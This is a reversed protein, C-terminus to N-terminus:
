GFPNWPNKKPKPRKWLDIEDKLNHVAQDNPDLGQAIQYLKRVQELRLGFADGGKMLQQIGQILGASFVQENEMYSVYLQDHAAVRKEKLAEAEMQWSDLVQKIRTPNLERRKKNAIESLCDEPPNTLLTQYGQCKGQWVALKKNFEAVSLVETQLKQWEAELDDLGNLRNVWTEWAKLNELQMQANARHKALDNVTEGTISYYTYEIKGELGSFKYSKAKSWEMDLTQSIRSVEEFQEQEIATKLKQCNEKLTAAIQTLQTLERRRKNVTDVLVQEAGCLELEHNLSTGAMAFEWSGRLADVKNKDFEAQKQLIRQWLSIKETLVKQSDSLIAEGTKDLGLLTKAAEIATVQKELSQAQRILEPLQEATVITLELLRREVEQLLENIKAKLQKLGAQAVRHNPLLTLIQQYKKISELPQSDRIQQAERLLVKTAEDKLDQEYQEITASTLTGSVLDDKLTALTALGDDYQNHTFYAKSEVFGQWIKQSQAPKPYKSGLKIQEVLRGAEEFKSDALYLGLLKEILMPEGAFERENLKTDLFSIAEMKLGLRLKEEVQRILDKLKFEHRAQQVQKKDSPKRALVLLIEYGNLVEASPTATDVVKQQWYIREIDNIDEQLDYEEVLLGQESVAKGMQWTTEVLAEDTKSAFCAEVQNKLLSLWNEVIEDFLAKREVSLTTAQSLLPVIKEYAKQYSQHAQVESRAKDSRPKTAQTLLKRIDDLQPRILNDQADLQKLENLRLRVNDYVPRTRDDLNTPLLIRAIEECVQKIEGAASEFSWQELKNNYLELARSRAWLLEAQAKLTGNKKVVADSRDCALSYQAKHYAEQAEQWILSEAQKATLLKAIDRAEPTNQEEDSLDNFYSQADDVKEQALAAQARSLLALYTEYRKAQTAIEIELENVQELAKTLQDSGPVDLVKHRIDALGAQAEAYEHSAAKSKPKNLDATVEVAAQHSWAQQRTLMMAEREPLFWESQALRLLRVADAHNHTDAAENQKAQAAEWKALGRRYKNEVETIDTKVRDLEQLLSPYNFQDRPPIDNWFALAQQIYDVASFPDKEEEYAVKAKGMREQAKNIVLKALGEAAEALVKNIIQKEGNIVIEPYGASFLTFFETYAEKFRSFELETAGLGLIGKIPNIGNLKLEDRLKVLKRDVDPTLNPRNSLKIVQTHHQELRRLAEDLQKYISIKETQSVGKKLPELLTTEIEKFESEIKDIEAQLKLKDALETAKQLLLRAQNAASEGEDAMELVAQWVQRCAKLNAANLELERANKLLKELRQLRKSEIQPLKTEAERTYNPDNKLGKWLERAQRYEEKQELEQAKKLRTPSDEREGPQTPTEDISTIVLEFEEKLWDAEAVSLPVAGAAGAQQWKKLRTQIDSFQGLKNYDDIFEDTNIENLRKILEQPSM